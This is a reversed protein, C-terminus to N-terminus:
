SRNAWILERSRVARSYWTSFSGFSRSRYRPSSARNDAVQTSSPRWTRVVSARWVSASSPFSCCVIPRITSPM